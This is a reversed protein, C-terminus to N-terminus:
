FNVVRSLSYRIEMYNSVSYFTFFRQEHIGAQEFCSQRIKMMFRGRRHIRGEGGMASTESAEM